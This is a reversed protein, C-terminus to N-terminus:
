AGLVLEGCAKIAAPVAPVWVEVWVVWGPGHVPCGDALGGDWAGQGWSHQLPVRLLLHCDGTGGGYCCGPKLPQLM